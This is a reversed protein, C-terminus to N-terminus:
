RLSCSKGTVIEIGPVATGSEILAKVEKKAIEPDYTRICDSYHNSTLYQIAKHYDTVEVREAKRYSLTAVGLNTKQGQCANDLYQMLSKQKNELTKRRNELREEEAKLVAIESRVNLVYKAVNELKQQRQMDLKQLEEYLQDSNEPMLGTEDPELASLINYIATDIEYLTM